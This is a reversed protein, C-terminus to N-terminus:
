EVNVGKTFLKVNIFYLAILNITYITIAIYIIYKIMEVNIIENTIFINMMDKNFISIIFMILLAFVQSIIYTIFGFLVSFGIKNNNKRHGLIIGTYGSQLMSAIELFLVLLIAILLKVMTSNFIDALPILLNKIAEINEKSYYSIFLTLGVVLISTFLTIIATLIKSLYITKKDLPLTHTLYSEDGYINQRFRVWARMINNIIISFMMSIAAGRCIEGIITMMLSNEISLFM